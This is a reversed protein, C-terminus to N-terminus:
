HREHRVAGSSVARKARSGRRGRIIRAGMRNARSQVAVGDDAVIGGTVCGKRIM